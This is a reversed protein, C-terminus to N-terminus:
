AAIKWQALPVFDKFVVSSCVYSSIDSSEYFNKLAECHKMSYTGKPDNHSIFHVIGNGSMVTGKYLTIPQSEPHDYCGSLMVFALIKLLHHM